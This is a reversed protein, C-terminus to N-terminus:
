ECVASRLFGGGTKLIVGNHHTDTLVQSDRCTNAAWYTTHDTAPLDELRTISDTEVNQWLNQYYPSRKQAHIILDIVDNELKHAM